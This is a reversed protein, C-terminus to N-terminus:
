KLIIKGSTNKAVEIRTIVICEERKAVDLDKPKGNSVLLKPLSHIKIKTRVKKSTLL